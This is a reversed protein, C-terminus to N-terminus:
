VGGRAPLLSRCAIEASPTVSGHRCCFSIEIRKHKRHQAASVIRATAPHRAGCGDGAGVWVIWSGVGVESGVHVGMGGGVAVGSSAGVAVDM